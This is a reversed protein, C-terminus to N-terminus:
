KSVKFTVGTFEGEESFELSGDPFLEQLQDKTMTDDVNKFYKEANTFALIFYEEPTLGSCTGHKEWEHDCLSLYEPAYKDWNPISKIIEDLESKTYRNPYSCFEPYNRGDRPESYQPWLGHLVLGYNGTCEPSDQKSPNTKCFYPAYSFSLLYYDFSM